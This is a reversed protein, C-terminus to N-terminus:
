KPPIFGSDTFQQLSKNAIASRIEKMMDQYFTINHITMLTAGLIEGSRILHHIYARSHNKCAYCECESDLPKNDDKFQSNKINLARGRVFAQGNRASRTPLVCDFMDVGRLVSGIIDAPKGVGMLYRPKDEPLIDTTIDIIGFMTEQEKEIAMAGGIAYGDFGIDMLTNASWERIDPYISGQVIGFLGFGDRQKFANKSREAWRMSLETSKKADKHTIPFPTCEDLVMTINSNLMHQIEISREPTLEIKAGNLHSKFTVSNETIKRLKSLSMVQFGGSDTLIPKNWNMFKHLGGFSAIREATPRLMLHYTNGLIIESGTSLINDQTLSKVTAQTGVPMFAPTQVVGHATHVRGLRAKGDTALLEYKISM